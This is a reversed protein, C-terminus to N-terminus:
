VGGNVLSDELEGLITAFGAPDTVQAGFRQGTADGGHVLIEGAVDDGFM